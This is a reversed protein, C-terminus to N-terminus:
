HKGSVAKAPAPAAVHAPMAAVHAGGMAPMGGVHAGGMAPMGGMRPGGMGPAMGGPRGGAFGPMAGAPHGAMGPAMGPRGGAFGPAAGAPHGPAMGGPHGAAFGTPVTGPHIGGGPVGGAHFGPEGHFGSAGGHFGPAGHFGAEGRFGPEGHFGPHGWESAGHFGGPRFAAEHWGRLGRGEPHFHELHARYRDPAGHWHHWHDYYGWGLAGGYALFVTEGAIVAAPEGGIYSIGEGEDGAALMYVPDSPVASGFAVVESHPVNRWIGRGNEMAERQQVRYSDPADPSVRAAGNVLAVKAVDTGDPLLCVYRNAYGQPDCTVSDGSAAIYGQLERAFPQAVGEVGAMLYVEGGGGVLTATDRLAPHALTVPPPPLSAWVGRRAAMAAAEQQRYPEPSDGRTLAAGNLLAAVAVDTGDPLACVFEASGQAHCTVRAGAADLYKQMGSAAEGSQGTIGFLAVVRDHSVLRATDVVKLEDFSVPEAAPPVAAVPPVASNPAIVQIEASTPPARGDAPAVSAAEPVPAVAPSPSPPPSPTLDLSGAQPAQPADMDLSQALAVPAAVGFLFGMGCVAGLSRRLGGYRADPMPFAGRKRRGRTPPSGTAAAQSPAVADQGAGGLGVLREGVCRGARHRFRAGGLRDAGAADRRCPGFRAGGPAVAGERAAPQVEPPPELAYQPAFGPVQNGKSYMCQAFANDYQQQIGMQANQAVSGGAGTGGAVGVGAGIAAGAGANGFASGTAAGLGAGLLTGVVAAGVAQNNAVDAQGKVQDGAFYKCTSQDSVFNDFSKGPGPMVQVTPGFPTQACGALGLSLATAALFIPKRTSSRIM